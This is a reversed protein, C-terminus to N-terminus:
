PKKEEALHFFGFVIGEWEAMTAEAEAIEARLDEEPIPDEIAEGLHKLKAQASLLREAREKQSEARHFLRGCYDGVSRRVLESASIGLRSAALALGVKFSTTTRLSFQNPASLFKRREEPGM